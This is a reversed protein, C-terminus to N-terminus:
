KDTVYKAEHVDAWERMYGVLQKATCIEPQCKGCIACRPKRWRHSQAYQQLSPMEPVFADEHWPQAIYGRVTM